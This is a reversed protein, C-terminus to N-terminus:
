NVEIGKENLDTQYTIRENFDDSFAYDASIFLKGSLGYETVEDTTATGAVIKDQIECCKDMKDDSCGYCFPKYEGPKDNYERYSLSNVNVPLECQGNICKGRENPYNLNGNNGYFPCDSDVKCPSDFTGIDDASKPNGNFDVTSECEEKTTYPLIDGKSNICVATSETQHEQQLTERNDLMQQIQSDNLKLFVVENSSRHYNHGTEYPTYPYDNYINVKNDIHMKTYGDQLMLNQEPDLGLLHLYNIIIGETDINISERPIYCETVIVYAYAKLKIYYTFQLIYLIYKDNEKIQIIGPNVLHTECDEKPINCKIETSHSSQSVYNYFENDIIGKIKELLSDVIDENVSTYEQAELPKFKPDKAEIFDTEKLSNNKYNGVIKDLINNQFDDVNIIRSKLSNQDNFYVQPMIKNQPNLIERSFQSDNYCKYSQPKKLYQKTDKFMNFRDDIEVSDYALKKKSQSDNNGNNNNGNNNDSNNNNNNNNVFFEINGNFYIFYLHIVFFIVISLFLFLFYNM